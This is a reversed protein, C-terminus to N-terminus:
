IKELLHKVNFTTIDLSKFNKNIMTKVANVFVNEMYHSILLFPIDLQKITLLDSWKADSTIIIDAGHKKLQIISMIDGSGPLIGVKKIEIQHNNGLFSLGDVDFTDKLLKVLSGFTNIKKDNLLIGYKGIISYNNEKIGLASTVALPMGIPSVDYSTHLSYYAIGTDQLKTLIERKYPCKKFEVTLSEEYFFPHHTIIMSINKSIAEDIVEPTLDLAILVSKLPSKLSGIILGNHDWEEGKILPFKNNLFSSLHKIAYKM